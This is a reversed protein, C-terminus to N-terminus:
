TYIDCTYTHIYTYIFRCIAIYIFTYMHIYLHIWTYISFYIHRYIHIYVHTYLSTNMYIYVYAHKIISAYKYHIDIHTTTCRTAPHLAHIHVIRGVPAPSVDLSFLCPQSVPACLFPISRLYHRLKAQSNRARIWSISYSSYPGLSKRASTKKM